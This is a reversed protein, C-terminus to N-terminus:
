KVRSLKKVAIKLSTMRLKKNNCLTPPEKLSAVTTGESKPAARRRSMLKKRIRRSSLM